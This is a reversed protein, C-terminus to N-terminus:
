EHVLFEDEKAVAFGDPVLFVAEGAPGIDTQGFLAQGFGLGGSLQQFSPPKAKSM